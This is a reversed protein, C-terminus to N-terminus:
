SDDHGVSYIVRSGTEFEVHTMLMHSSCRPIKIRKDLRLTAVTGASLADFM